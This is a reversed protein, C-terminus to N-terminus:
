VLAGARTALERLGSPRRGPAQAITAILRRVSARRVEEPANREAALLARCAQEPRGHQQWARATDVLFKARRESTVLRGQNVSRAHTLAAGSDGLANHIGIQYVEVGTVSFAPRTVASGPMRAAAGGAEAILDLAQDRRGNQASSYAATRLLSGYAALVPVSLDGHDADLSFATRTLMTTAADYHGLRRMAIAVVRSAAAITAPDGSDRAAALARDAAVWSMGDEGAKVALESVLVYTGALTASAATAPSGSVANARNAAATAVLDPLRVALAQYRCASFAQWAAALRPELTGAPM